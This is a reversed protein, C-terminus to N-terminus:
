GTSHKALHEAAGSEPREKLIAMNELDGAWIM